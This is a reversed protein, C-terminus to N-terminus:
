GMLSQIAPTQDAHLIREITDLAAQEEPSTTAGFRTGFIGGAAEAVSKSMEVLSAISKGNISLVDRLLSLTLEVYEDSPKQELLAAVFLWAEDNPSINRVKLIDLIAEKEAKQVRGDAWAIHILPLIDFVRATDGDFGLARIRAILNPNDIDLAGAVSLRTSEEKAARALQDRKERRKEALEELFYREM